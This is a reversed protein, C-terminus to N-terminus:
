DARFVLLAIRRQAAPMAFGSLEGWAAWEGRVAAPGSADLDFRFAHYTERRHSFVHPISGLPAGARAPVTLHHLRAARCAAARATEGARITVGPFEWMGALLGHEPRRCILMRQRADLVVATGLEFLPGASARKRSRPSLHTGRAYARCLRAVPCVACRPNKPRCISSGLEMVAQNFDGPRKRPVISRVATHIQAISLASVDLLRSFVRHANGDIAPVRQGFAISAIAGATYEGIGPLERLASATHPLLGAYKESVFRAARQLNRARTYYGLGQWLRLVDDAEARALAQVTPFRELWREYYPTVTEARTQQLMVESVWVRYPDRSRRWPLDRRSHDFFELLARRLSRIWTPGPIWLKKRKRHSM